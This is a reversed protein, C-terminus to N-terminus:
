CPRVYEGRGSIRPCGNEDAIRSPLRETNVMLSARLAPAPHLPTSEGVRFRNDLNSVFGCVRRLISGTEALVM